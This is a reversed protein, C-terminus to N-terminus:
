NFIDSTDIGFIHAIAGLTQVKNADEKVGEKNYEDGLATKLESIDSESLNNKVNYPDDVENGEEDKTAEVIMASVLESELSTGVFETASMNSTSETNEETKFVNKEKESNEIASTVATLVEGVKESEELRNEENLEIQEKELTDVMSTLLGSITHAKDTNLGISKLNEESVINKISNADSASFNLILAEVAAGYEIEKKEDLSLVLLTTKQRAILMKEMDSDARLATEIFLDDVIGLDACGKSELVTRLMFEYTEGFFRSHKIGNFGRGLAAFDGYTVLDILNDDELKGEVSKLFTDIEVIVNALIRGEENVMEETLTSVDIMEHKETVTGNIEDYIGYLYNIMGNSLAPIIPRMRENRHLEVLMNSIVDTNELVLLIQNTDGSSAAQVIGDGVSHKLIELITCVDAKFTESTSDALVTIISDTAGQLNEGLQPKEIGFVTNGNEWQTAIFSLTNSILAPLFETENIIAEINAIAEVQENGYEATPTGIFCDAEKYLKISNETETTLSVRVNDVNITTLNKFLARGGMVHIAKFVPTNKTKELAELTGGASQEDDEIVISATDYAYNVYGVIPIFFIAFAVISSVFGIAGGGLKLGIGSPKPLVIKQIIIKPIALIVGLVVYIIMFIIPLIVVTVLALLLSVATSNLEPSSLYGIAENILETTSPDTSSLAFNNLADIITQIDAVSKAIATAILTSILLNLLVVGIDLLSRLTGKLFGSLFGVGGVILFAVIIGASVTGIIGDM